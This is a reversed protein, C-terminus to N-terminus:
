IYDLNTAKILFSVRTRARRESQPPQVNETNANNFRSILSSVAPTTTENDMIERMLKLKAEKSSLEAKLRQDHLELKNELEREKKEKEHELKANFKEKQREKEYNKRELQSQMSNLETELKLIYTDKDRVKRNLADIANEYRSMKNEYNRLREREQNLTATVAANETKM